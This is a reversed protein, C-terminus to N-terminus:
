EKLFKLISPKDLGDIKIYYFGAQLNRIDLKIQATGKNAHLSKSIINKGEISFIEFQLLTSTNLKLNVIVFDRAPNPYITIAQKNLNILAANTQKFARQSEANRTFCITRQATVDTVILATDIVKESNAFTDYKKDSVVFTKQFITTDFGPILTSTCIGGLSDYKDVVININNQVNGRFAHIYGGDNTFLIESNYGEESQKILNKNVLYQISNYQQRDMYKGKAKTDNFKLSFSYTYLNEYNDPSYLGAIFVSDNKFYVNEPRLHAFMSANAPLIKKCQKVDGNKEALVYLIIYSGYTYFNDGLSYGSIAIDSNSAESIQVPIFYTSTKANIVKEWIFEGLNNLKLISFKNTQFDGYKDRLLYYNGKKSEYIYESTNVTLDTNKIAKSWEISGKKDCKIIFTCSDKGYQRGGSEFAMIFGSDSTGWCKTGFESSSTGYTKAWLMKGEDNLRICYDDSDGAGFNNTSGTVLYGNVKMKKIDDENEFASIGGFSKEYSSQAFIKGTIILFVISLLLCNTKM